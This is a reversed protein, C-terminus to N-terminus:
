RGGKIRRALRKAPGYSASSALAREVYNRAGAVNGRAFESEAFSTHFEARQQDTARPVLWLAAANLHESADEYREARLLYRIKALVNGIRHPWLRLAEDPEALAGLELLDAVLSPERDGAEWARKLLGVGGASDGKAIRMRGRLVDAYAGLEGETADLVSRAASHQGARVLRSAFDLMFLPQYAVFQGMRELHRRAPERKKDDLLQLARAFHGEAAAVPPLDAGFGPEFSATAILWWGGRDQGRAALTDWLRGAHRPDTAQAAAVVAAASGSTGRVLTALSKQAPRMEGVFELARVTE